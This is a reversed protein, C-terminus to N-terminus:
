VIGGLGRGNNRVMWGAPLYTTREFIVKDESLGLSIIFYIGSDQCRQAFTFKTYRKKVSRSIKIIWSM